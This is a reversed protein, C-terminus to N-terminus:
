SHCPLVNQQTDILHAACTATIIHAVCSLQVQQMLGEGCPPVDATLRADKILLCLGSTLLLEFYKAGYIRFATQPLDSIKWIWAFCRHFFLSKYILKVLKNRAHQFPDNSLQRLHHINVLSSRDHVSAEITGVGIVTRRRGQWLQKFESHQDSSCTLTLGSWVCVLCSALYFMWGEVGWRGFVPFVQNVQALQPLTLFFLSLKKMEPGRHQIDIDQLNLFM